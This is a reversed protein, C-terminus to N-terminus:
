LRVRYGATIGYAFASEESVFAKFDTFLSSHAFCNINMGVGFHVSTSPLNVDFNPSWFDQTHIIARGYGIGTSLYPALTQQVDAVDFRFNLSVYWAEKDLTTPLGPQFSSRYWDYGLGVFMARKEFLRYYAAVHVAGGVDFRTDFTREMDSSVGAGVAIDFRHPLPQQAPLVRAFGGLMIVVLCLAAPRM